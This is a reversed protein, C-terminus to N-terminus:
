LHAFGYEECGQNLMQELKYDFGDELVKGYSKHCFPCQNITGNTDIYISKKGAM